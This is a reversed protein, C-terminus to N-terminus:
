KKELSLAIKETQSDKKFIEDDFYTEKKKLM